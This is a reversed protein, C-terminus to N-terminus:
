VGAAKGGPFVQWYGGLLLSPPGLFVRTEASYLCIKQKEHPSFRLERHDLRYVLWRLAFSDARRYTRLTVHIPICVAFSRYIYREGTNQQQRWRLDLVKCSCRLEFSNLKHETSITVSWTDCRCLVGPLVTSFM